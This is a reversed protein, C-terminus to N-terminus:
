NKIIIKNNNRFFYIVELKFNHPKISLKSSALFENANLDENFNSDNDLTSNKIDM